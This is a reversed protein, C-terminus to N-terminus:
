PRGWFGTGVADSFGGGAMLHGTDDIALPLQPLARRAPGHIARGGDLVDFVAQHCPCLITGTRQQYLGVPCAMHTCLKSYVVIGDVVWGVREPDDVFRDPSERVLVAQAQASGLAGDPYVTILEGEAIDAALIPDGSEDVVRSGARWETARLRETADGTRRVAPFAVATAVVAAAGAGAGLMLRRRALGPGKNHREEVDPEGPALVHAAMGLTAASGALGVAIASAVVTGVQGTAAAVVAGGFAVATIAAAVLVRPTILARM